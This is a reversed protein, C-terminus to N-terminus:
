SRGHPSPGRLKRCFHVEAKLSLALIEWFAPGWFHCPWGEEKLVDQGSPCLVALQSVKGRPEELDKKHISVTHEVVSTIRCKFSLAGSATPFVSPHLHNQGGGHVGTGQTLVWGTFFGAERGGQRKGAQGRAEGLVRCQGVAPAM